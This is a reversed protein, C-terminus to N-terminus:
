LVQIGSYGAFNLALKLVSIDLALRSVSLLKANCERLHPCRILQDYYKHMTITKKQSNIEPTNKLPLSGNLM